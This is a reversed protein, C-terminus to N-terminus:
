NGIWKRLREVEYIRMIQMKICAHGENSIWFPNLYSLLLLFFAHKCITSTCHSLCFSFLKDSLFSLFVLLFPIQQFSSFLSPCFSFTLPTITLLVMIYLLFSICKLEKLIVFILTFILSFWLCLVAQLCPQLHWFPSCPACLFPVRLLDNKGDMAYTQSQWM